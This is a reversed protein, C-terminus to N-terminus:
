VAGRALMTATSGGVAWGEGISTTPQGVHSAPPARRVLCGDSIVLLAFVGSVGSIPLKAAAMIGAPSELPTNMLSVLTKTM